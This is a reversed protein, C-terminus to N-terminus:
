KLEAAPIICISALYFYLGDKSTWTGIKKMRKLFGKSQLSSIMSIKESVESTEKGNVRKEQISSSSQISHEVKTNLFEVAEAMGRLRAEEEQRIRDEPTKDKIIARGITILIMKGDPQNLLECGGEQILFSMEETCLYKTYEPNLHVNSVYENINFDNQLKSPKIEPQDGLAFSLIFICLLLLYNM